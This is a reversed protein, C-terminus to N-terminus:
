ITTQCTTRPKLCEAYDRIEPKLIASPDGVDFGYYKWPGDKLRIMGQRDMDILDAIRAREKPQTPKTRQRGYAMRAALRYKGTAALIWCFYEEHITFPGHPTCLFYVVNDPDGVSYHRSHLWSHSPAKQLAQLRSRFRKRGAM